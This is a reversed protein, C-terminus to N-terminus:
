KLAIDVWFCGIKKGKIKGINKGYTFLPGRSYNKQKQYDVHWTFTSILLSSKSFYNLILFSMNEVPKLRKQMCYTIQGGHSKYKKCNNYDLICKFTSILLSPQRFYNSIVLVQKKRKNLEKSLYTIQGWTPSINFLKTM